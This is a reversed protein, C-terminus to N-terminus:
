KNIGREFFNFSALLKQGIKGDKPNAVHDLYYIAIDSFESGLCIIPRGDTVYNDCCLATVCAKGPFKVYFSYSKSNMAGVELMSIKKGSQKLQYVLIQQDILALCVYQMDGSKSQCFDASVTNIEKTEKLKRNQYNKSSDKVKVYTIVENNAIDRQRREEIAKKIMGPECDVKNNTDM